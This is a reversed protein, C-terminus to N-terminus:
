LLAIFQVYEAMSHVPQHVNQLIIVYYLVVIGALVLAIRHFNREWFHEYFLPGTAIMLLLLIFPLVLWGPVADHGDEFEGDIAQHRDQLEPNVEVHVPAIEVFDADATTAPSIAYTSISFFLALIAF